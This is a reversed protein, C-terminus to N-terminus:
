RGQFPNMGRGGLASTAIKAMKAARMARELRSIRDKSLYGGLARLLYQERKDISSQKALGTLRQVTAMDIDPLSFNQPQPGEEKKPTDGGLTQAMSMIQQMMKPDSLISNIKDEMEAM